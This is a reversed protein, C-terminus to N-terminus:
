SETLRALLSVAPRWEARLNTFLNLLETQALDELEMRAQRTASPGSENPLAAELQVSSIVLNNGIARLASELIREVSHQDAPGPPAYVTILYRLDLPPLSPEHSDQAGQRVFGANQRHPSAAIRWLAVNVRARVRAHPTFQEAEAPSLTTVEVEPSVTAKLL